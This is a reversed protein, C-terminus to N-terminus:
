QGSKPVRKIDARCIEESCLIQLAQFDWRTNGTKSDVICESGQTYQQYLLKSKETFSVCKEKSSNCCYTGHRM